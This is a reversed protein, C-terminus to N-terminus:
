KKAEIKVELGKNWHVHEDTYYLYSRSSAGRYRGPISAVVTLVAHVTEGPRMCRKYLVVDRLRTEYAAITGQKVLEKLRDHNVDLGGPIGVIAVTMPLGENTTNRMWVNLEAAEGEKIVPSSLETRLRVKCEPSDAPTMANYHITAGFPMEAGGEMRIEVLNEGAKLRDVFSPLAIPEEAGAPFSVSGVKEKNVFVSLTGPNKPRGRSKDYAVIAKLALITAQTSGFRGGKCQKLLWRTAKEVQAPHKGSRLWAVVTLSTTEVHLSNGGSRTVTTAAGGVFGEDTQAAGLRLLIKEADPDKRLLLINAGLAMIYSDKGELATKKVAAVERDIDKQGSEVLTWTIYANTVGAPARGFSDLARPNRKFGGEGDRRDLLWTRTRQMMTNDVPYVKAMDVFEM